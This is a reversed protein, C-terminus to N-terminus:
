TSDKRSLQEQQKLQDELALIAQDAAAIIRKISRDLELLLLAQLAHRRRTNRLRHEPLRRHKLLIWDGTIANRAKLNTARSVGVKVRNM